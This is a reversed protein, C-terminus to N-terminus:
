KNKELEINQYPLRNASAIGGVLVPGVLFQCGFIIDGPSARSSLLTTSLPMRFFQNNTPLSSPPLALAVMRDRDWVQWM